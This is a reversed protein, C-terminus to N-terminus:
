CQISWAGNSNPKLSLSGILSLRILLSFLGTFRCIRTMSAKMRLLEAIVEAFYTTWIGRIGKGGGLDYIILNDGNVTLKTPKSFGVTPMIVPNLELCNHQFVFVNINHVVELSHNRYRRKELM